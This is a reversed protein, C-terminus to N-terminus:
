RRYFDVWTLKLERAGDPFARRPIRAEYYGAKKLLYKGELPKGKKDLMRIGLAGRPDKRSDLLLKGDVAASAGELGGLHYRVLVKGPWSGELLRVTASGIGFKDAVDFVVTDGVLTPRVERLLQHGNDLRHIEVEFRPRASRGEDLIGPCQCGSLLVFITLATFRM